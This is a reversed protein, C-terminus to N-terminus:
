TVAAASERRWGAKFRCCCDYLSSDLGEAVERHKVVGLNVSDVSFVARLNTEISRGMGELVILDCGRSERVVEESLASLDIVPLGSGTSCLSLAGSRWADRLVGDGGAGAVSELMAHMEDRTIDNISPLENACM